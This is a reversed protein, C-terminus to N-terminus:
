PAGVMFPAAEARPVAPRAGTEAPLRVDLMAATEPRRLKWILGDFAYHLYAAWLNLAIWFNHWWADAAWGVIGLTLLYAGFALLWYRAMTQWLSATGLHERRQAYHTVFALYEVAHVLTVAGTLPVVWATARFHVAALLAGYLSAISALYLLKAASRERPRALELVVMAALLLGVLSDAVAVLAAGGVWDDTWGISWYPLRLLTYLVAGRLGYSEWRPRGGGAKRAYIRLIGAHQSAFHWANWIFDVLLLCALSELWLWGAAVVLAALVTLALFLKGRGARRDPDFAVLALTIWRHPTTLFYVQWFDLESGGSVPYLGPALVLPWYANALFAADFWPAVIWRSKEATSPM